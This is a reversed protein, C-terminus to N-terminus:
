PTSVDHTLVPRVRMESIDIQTRKHPYQWPHEATFSAELFHAGLAAVPRAVWTEARAFGPEVFQRDLVVNSASDLLRLRDVARVAGGPALQVCIPVQPADPFVVIPGGDVLQAVTTPELSHAAWEPRLEYLQKMKTHLTDSTVAWAGTGAYNWAAAGGLAELLIHTFRGGGGEGDDYALAGMPGPVLAYVKNKPASTSPAFLDIPQGIAQQQSAEAIITETVIEQCTDVFLLGRGLGEARRMRSVETLLDIHPNWLYAPNSRLDSLLVMMRAGTAVGHGCAYVLATNDGGSFCRARWTAAAAAVKAATAPDVASSGRPDIAGASPMRGFWTYQASAGGPSAILLEVSGLRPQLADAHRILWDATLEAGAAASPLDAAPALAPYYGVGIVIAHTAPGGIAREYVLTM